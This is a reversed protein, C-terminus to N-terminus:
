LGRKLLTYVDYQCGVYVGRAVGHYAFRLPIQRKQASVRYIGVASDDRADPQEM